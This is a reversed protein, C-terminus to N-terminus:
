KHKKKKKYEGAFQHMFNQKNTVYLVQTEEAIGNALGSLQSLVLFFPCQLWFTPAAFIYTVFIYKTLNLFWYTKWMDLYVFTVKPEQPLLEKNRKKKQNKNIGKKRTRTHRHRPLM